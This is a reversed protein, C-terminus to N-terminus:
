RRLLADQNKSNEAKECHGSCKGKDGKVSPVPDYGGQCFPHCRLIRGLSFLLGRLTGHTEIAEIAYCSCTPTFRCSPPLLPSIIYRYGRILGLPIKQIMLRIKM